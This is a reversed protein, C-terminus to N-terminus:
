AVGGSLHRVIRLFSIWPRRKRTSANTLGAPMMAWSNVLGWTAPIAERSEYTTKLVFYSQTPVINFRPKSDGLDSAPVGLLAALETKERLTLTFRGCMDIVRRWTSAYSRALHGRGM